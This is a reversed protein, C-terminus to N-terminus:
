AIAATVSAAAAALLLGLVANRFVPAPLRSRLRTGVFWGIILAPFAVLIAGPVDGGLRGGAAFMAVGVASAVGLVASSTPRFEEPELGRAQLALVTPPGNTTLSTTLVGTAFGASLEVSRGKGALSFGAVLVVVSVIVAAALALRLVNVPALTLVLFGLPLGPLAGVLLARVAVWDVHDRESWALMFSNVVLLVIAVAVADKADMVLGLPPVALLSFGFGVVTQAFAALGVILCVAVLAGATM